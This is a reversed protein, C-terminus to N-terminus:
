KRWPCTDNKTRVIPNHMLLNEDGYHIANHTRKSVCILNEPDILVGSRSLVDDRTISNLHHIYIRGVIERGPIGLDCGEDRIIIKDRVSRWESSHYFSQNLYREFGFTEEGVVGDLKLYNYREIFSPIQILESYLKITSM